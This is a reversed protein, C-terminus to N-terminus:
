PNLTPQLLEEVKEMFRAVLELRKVDQSQLDERTVEWTQVLYRTRNCEFYHETSGEHENCLPCEVVGKNKYNGPIKSMHLRSKIIAKTMKLSTKSCLYDKTRYEDNVVIRGKKMKTCERRIKDEEKLAIKEKVHKKWTSKLTLKADLEIEYVAIIKQIGGQWTTERGEREQEIIMKKIVRREDSHLINHFLMLKKYDLRAQMTWWGTEMLLAYYPTTSPLELIGTLIQLQVSELLKIESKKYYPFAEANHLISRIVVVQALKLRAEVAYRGVKKPHGQNRVTTIMYQLKETKKHINILYEGTEDFWTGLMIHEKVREIRGDKVGSTLMKTEKKKGGIIMYETKGRKKSFKMRKREELLSCNYILNNAVQMDGIGNIDDVFIMAKIPLEPGYQTTIDKGLLNVKDTSANCIQPGYVSGQKVINNLEFPETDGVPTKVVVRVKENLKKIMTCDRTDTGCRWLETIGDELWIKDFCKEADTLVLVTNKNLFKSREIIATATMVNDVGCRNKVGGTQWESLGASYNEHNRNKVV